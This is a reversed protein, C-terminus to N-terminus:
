IQRTSKVTEWRTYDKGSWYQFWATLVTANLLIFFIWTKIIANKVNFMFPIVSLAYMAAQVFFVYRWFITAIGLYGTLFFIIVLLWPSSLPLVKRSLYIYAGYMGTSWLVKSNRKVSVITQVIIRVKQKFLDSITNPAREWVKADPVYAVRKGHSIVWLTMEFDDTGGPKYWPLIKGDQVFLEKRFMSVEGSMAIVSHISAERRRMFIELQWYLGGGRSVTTDDSSIQRMAGTAAGIGPDTFPMVMKKLVDKEMFANADTIMILEGQTHPLMLNIAGAKGPKHNLPTISIQSAFTLAKKLTADTSASDVLIIEVKEKPYDLELVNRLKREIVIEENYTPIIITVSPFLDLASPILKTRRSRLVLLSLPYGLYMWFIFLSATIVITIATSEM